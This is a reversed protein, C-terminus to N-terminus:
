GTDSQTPQRQPLRTVVWLHLASLTITALLMATTQGTFDIGLDIVLGTIGPGIASGIVMFTSGTAKIAGLHRTGYLEPWLAGWMAHSIGTSMGTLGLAIWWAWLGPFPGIFLMGIGLPLLYFPLMRDPGYRDCAAGAILSTVISVLAYVPYAATMDLKSWEMVGGIHVAQFFIVTGIFSHAITAPVLAWFLWHRLVQVRTWHRGDRGPSHEALTMSQPSREDRAMWAILPAFGAILLAAVILWVARWGIVPELLAALGPLIAEGLSYGLGAIAVARGRHARFWRGMATIGLHSIMGQGCFRLGFILLVLVLPSENLWMGLAVVAFAGFIMAALRGVPVQDAFKGAYLLVAASSLTAITYIGGWEGDTLGYDAMIRDAFISIFYTQGFSSTLTLLLGVSLWRANAFLFSGRM